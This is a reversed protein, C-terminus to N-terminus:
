KQVSESRRSFPAIIIDGNGTMSRATGHRVQEADM